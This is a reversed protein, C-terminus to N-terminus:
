GTMTPSSTTDFIPASPSIIKGIGHHVESKELYSWLARRVLEGELGTRRFTQFAHSQTASLHEGFRQLLSSRAADDLSNFYEQARAARGANKARQTEAAEREREQKAAKEKEAALRKQNARWASLAVLDEASPGHDRLRQRKRVRFGVENKIPRSLSESWVAAEILEEMDQNVVVPHHTTTSSSIESTTETIAPPIQGPKSTSDQWGTPQIEGDLQNIGAMQQNKLLFEFLRDLNVRYHLKAPVGKLREELLGHQCLVKRAGEQEARTLGLEWEWSQRSANEPPKMRGTVDRDANRLKYWWQDAGTIGQWYCAQCLFLAPIAGLERALAPRFAVVEREGLLSALLLRVDSM